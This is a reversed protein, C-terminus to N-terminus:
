EGWRKFLTHEIDLIDFWKGILFNEMDELNQQQSYYGLVPPAVVVGLNSLKTMNELQITNFPMERPALVIKRKEKLMVGFVRTILTDSIGCACKALTNMSCPIVILSDTKFSGSSIPSALDEDDFYTINENEVLEINKQEKNLTYLASKSVVAFVKIDSPILKLFKLGLQVGSAGSIAVVIKKQYREKDM